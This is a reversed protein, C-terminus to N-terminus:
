VITLEAETTKGEGLAGAGWFWINCQQGGGPFM